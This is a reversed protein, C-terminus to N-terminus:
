QTLDPFLQEFLAINLKTYVHSFFHKGDWCNETNSAYFKTINYADFLEIRGNLEIMKLFTQDDIPTFVERDCRATTTKWIVRKSVTAITNFATMAINPNRFTPYEWFGQNLILLDTDLPKVVTTLFNVIDSTSMQATPEYNFADMWAPLSFDCRKNMITSNPVLNVNINHPPLWLFMRISINSKQDYYHRNEKFLMPDGANINRYCDCYEQCGLRQSTGLHFNKWNSWPTEVEIAPDQSPRWSNTHLAHVLNLYQYRTLSDGVFIVQKNELLSFKLLEIKHHNTVSNKDNPVAFCVFHISVLLSILAVAYNM